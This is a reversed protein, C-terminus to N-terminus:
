AITCAPALPTVSLDPVAVRAGAPHQPAAMRHPPEGAVREVVKATPTPRTPFNLPDNAFEPSPFVPVDDLLARGTPGLAADLRHLASSHSRFSFYFRVRDETAPEAM